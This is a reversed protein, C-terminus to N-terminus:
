RFYWRASIRGTARVDNGKVTVGGQTNGQYEYIALVEGGISARPLM